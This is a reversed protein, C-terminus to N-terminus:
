AGTSLSSRFVKAAIVALGMWPSIDYARQSILIRWMVSSEALLGPALDGNRSIRAFSAGPVRWAACHARGFFQSLAVPFVYIFRRLFTLPAIRRKSMGGSGARAVSIQMIIRRKGCPRIQALAALSPYHSRTIRADM